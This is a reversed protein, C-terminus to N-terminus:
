SFEAEFDEPADMIGTADHVWVGHHVSKLHRVIRAVDRRTALGVV